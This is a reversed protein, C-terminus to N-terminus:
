SEKKESVRKEPSGETKKKSAEATEKAIEATEVASRAAQRAAETSQAGLLSVRAMQAMIDRLSGSQIAANLNQKAETFEREREEEKEKKEKPTPEAKQVQRKELISQIAKRKAATIIPEKLMAQLGAESYSGYAKKYEAQQRDRRAAEAGSLRALGRTALPLAKITRATIGQGKLVGEALAGGARTGVYRSVKGAYGQAKKGIKSLGKQVSDAGMAGIQKAVILSAILFIIIIVFNLLFALNGPQPNKQGVWNFLGGYDSVSAGGIGSYVSYAANSGGKLANAIFGSNIVTATFWLMFLMAPAFFAQEFLTNLWKSFHKKTSPLVYAGFALPAFVMLIMLVVMRIVFLIGAVLFIFGAIALIVTGFSVALLMKLTQDANNENQATQDTLIKADDLIKNVNLGNIFTLAVDKTDGGLSNYFEVALVNSADIVLRTIVLSFNVLFAIVILSVLLEKAGYGSIQLITAIAIYLLVFILFLNVIDRSLGWGVNVAGTAATASASAALSRFTEGTISLSIGQNLIFSSFYLFASAIKFPVYYIFNYVIQLIFDTPSNFLNWFSGSSTKTPVSDLCLGDPGINICANVRSFLGFLIVVAIVLTLIKSLTKKSPM